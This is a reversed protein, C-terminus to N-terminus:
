RCGAAGSRWGVQELLALHAADGGVGPGVALLEQGQGGAIAGAAWPSADVRQALGVLGQDVQGGVPDVAGGHQPHPSIGAPATLGHRRRRSPPLGARPLARGHVVQMTVSGLFTRAMGPHVYSSMMILAVGLGRAQQNVAVAANSAFQFDTKADVGLDRM